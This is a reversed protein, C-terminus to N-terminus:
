TPIQDLAMTPPMTAITPPPGPMMAPALPTTARGIALSTAACPVPLIRSFEKTKSNNNDAKRNNCKHIGKIMEDM